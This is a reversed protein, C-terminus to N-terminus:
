GTHEQQGSEEEWGNGGRGEGGSGGRRERGRRVMGGREESVCKLVM